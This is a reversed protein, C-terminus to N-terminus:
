KEIFGTMRLVLNRINRLDRGKLTRGKGTCMSYAATSRGALRRRREALVHPPVNRKADNTCRVDGDSCDDNGSGSGDSSATWSRSRRKRLPVLVPASLEPPSVKAIDGDVNSGDDGDRRHESNYHPWLVDAEQLEQHDM